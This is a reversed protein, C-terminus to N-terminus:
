HLAMRSYARVGVALLMNEEDRRDYQRQSSGEDTLDRLTLKLCQLIVYISPIRLLDGTCNNKLAVSSDSEYIDYQMHAM